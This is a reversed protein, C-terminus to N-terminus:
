SFAAWVLAGVEPFILTRSTAIAGLESKTYVEAGSVVSPVKQAFGQLVGGAQILNNEETRM